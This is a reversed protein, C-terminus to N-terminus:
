GPRDCRSRLPDVNPVALENTQDLASRRMRRILRPPRSSHSACPRLRFVPLGDSCGETSPLMARDSLYAAFRRTISRGGSTRKPPATPNLCCQTFQRGAVAYAPQRPLAVKRSSPLFNKDRPTASKPKNQAFQVSLRGRYPACYSGPLRQKRERWRQRQSRTRGSCLTVAMDSECDSISAVPGYKPCGFFAEADRRAISTFVHLGWLSFAKATRM